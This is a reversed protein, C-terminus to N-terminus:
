APKTAVVLLSSRRAPEEDGRDLRSLSLLAPFVSAYLRLPLSAADQEVDAWTWDHQRHVRRYALHVLSVFGACARYLTGGVGTVTRIGFGAQSLLAGIERAEYGPRVHREPGPRDHVSQLGLREVLPLPARRNPVTLVLTGGPKLVRAVEALAGRDDEIYELVELCCAVDLIGSDLPLEGLDGHVPTLLGQQVLDPYIRELAELNMASVDVCLVRCGHRALEASFCGTGCGLDGVLTGPRLPLRALVAEARVQLSLDLEQVSRYARDPM